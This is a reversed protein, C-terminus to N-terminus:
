PHSGYTILPLDHCLPLGEVNKQATTEVHGAKIGDLIKIAYELNEIEGILQIFKGRNRILTESNTWKCLESPPKSIIALDDATKSDQDNHSENRSKFTITFGPKIKRNNQSAVTTEQCWLAILFGCVTCGTHSLINKPIDELKM